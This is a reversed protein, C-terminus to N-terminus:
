PAWLAADLEDDSEPWPAEQCLWGRKLLDRAPPGLGASRKRGALFSAVEPIERAIREQAKQMRNRVTNRHVGLLEAIQSDSLGELRLGVIILEDPRFATLAEALAERWVLIEL